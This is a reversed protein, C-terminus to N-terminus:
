NEVCRKTARGIKLQWDIEMSERTPIISISNQNIEPTKM